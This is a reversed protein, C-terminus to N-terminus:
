ELDVSVRTSKRTGRTSKRTNRTSSIAGRNADEAHLVHLAQDGVIHYLTITIGHASLFFMHERNYKDTLADPLAYSISVSMHRYFSCTNVITNILLHM